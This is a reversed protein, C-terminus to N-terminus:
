LPNNCKGCSTGEGFGRGNKVVLCRFHSSKQRHRSAVANVTGVCSIHPQGSSFNAVGLLVVFALLIGMDVLVNYWLPRREIDMELGWGCPILLHEGLHLGITHDGVTANLRVCKSVTLQDKIHVGGVEVIVAAIVECFLKVGVCVFGCDFDYTSLLINQRRDHVGVLAVPGHGLRQPLIHVVVMEM